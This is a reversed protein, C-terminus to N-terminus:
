KKDNEIVEVAEEGNKAWILEADTISLTEQIIEFNIKKGHEFSEDGLPFNAIQIFKFRKNLCFRGPHTLDSKVAIKFRPHSSPVNKM